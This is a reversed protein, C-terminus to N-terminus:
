FKYNWGLSITSQSGDPLPLYRFDFNLLSNQGISWSAGFLYYINTTTTSISKGNVKDKGQLFWKIGWYLSIFPNVSFYIQPSLSFREGPDLTTNNKNRSLHIEYATELYLVIPDITYYTSLNLKHDKFFTKKYGNPFSSNNIALTSYSLLIGPYKDEDHLQYSFGIGLSSFRFDNKSESNGNPYSIRSFSSLLSASSFVEIKKTIGYRLRTSVLINDANNKEDGLYTFIPVINNNDTQLYVLQSKGSSKTISTYSFNFDVQFEKKHSLIQEVKIPKAQTHNTSFLIIALFILTLIKNKNNKGRKTELFCRILLVIFAFIIFIVSWKFLYFLIVKPPKKTFILNLTTIITINSITFIISAVIFEHLPFFIGEKRCRFPFFDFVLFFITMIALGISFEISNTVEM